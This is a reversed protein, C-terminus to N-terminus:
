NLWRPRRPSSSRVTRASRRDPPLKFAIV